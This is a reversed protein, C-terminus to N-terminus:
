CLFNKKESHYEQNVFHWLGANGEVEHPQSVKFVNLDAQYSRNTSYIKQSQLSFSTLITIILFLLNKM